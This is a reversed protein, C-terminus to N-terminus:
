HEKVGHSFTKRRAWFSNASGVMSQQWRPIVTCHPAMMDILLLWDKREEQAHELYLIEESVVKGHSKASSFNKTKYVDMYAM